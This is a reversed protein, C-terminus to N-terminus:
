LVPFLESKRMGEVIQQILLAYKPPSMPTESSIWRSIVAIIGSLYFDLKYVTQEENQPMQLQQAFLPILFEKLKAPFRSDTGKLLLKLIDRKEEYIIIFTDVFFQEPNARGIRSVVTEKIYNMLDDEIHSILHHTDDFYQYFTSRNYGAKSSIESVTIKDIPKHRSLELFTNIITSRTLETREYQKKM